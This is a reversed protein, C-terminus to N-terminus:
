SPLWIRPYTLYRKLVSIVKQPLAEWIQARFKKEGQAETWEIMEQRTTCYLYITENEGKNVASVFHNATKQKRVIKSCFQQSGKNTGKLVVTETESAEAIVTQESRSNRSRKSRGETEKKGHSKKDLFRQPQIELSFILVTCLQLVGAFLRRLLANIKEDSEKYCDYAFVVCARRENGWDGVIYDFKTFNWGKIFPRWTM